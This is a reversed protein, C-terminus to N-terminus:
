RGGLNLTNSCVLRPHNQMLEQRLLYIVVRALKRSGASRMRPLEILFLRCLTIPNDEALTLKQATTLYPTHNM